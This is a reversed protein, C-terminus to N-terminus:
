HRHLSLLMHQEAVDIGAAPTIGSKMM